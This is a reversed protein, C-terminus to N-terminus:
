DILYGGSGSDDLAACLKIYFWLAGFMLQVASLYKTQFDYDDKWVLYMRSDSVKM